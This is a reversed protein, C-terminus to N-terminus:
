FGIRRLIREFYTEPPTDDAPDTRLRPDTWSPLIQRNLRLLEPLRRVNQGTMATRDLPGKNIEWVGTPTLVNKFPVPLRRAEGEVIAGTTTTWTSRGPLVIPELDQVRNSLNTLSVAQVGVAATSKTLGSVHRDLSSALARPGIKDSIRTVARGFTDGIRQFGPGLQQCGGLTAVLLLVPISPNLSRSRSSTM